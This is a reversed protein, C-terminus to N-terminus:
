GADDPTGEPLFSPAHSASCPMNSPLSNGAAIDPVPDRPCPTPPWRLTNGVGAPPLKVSGGSAPGIVGVLRRTPHYRQYRYAHAM